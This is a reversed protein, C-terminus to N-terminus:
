CLRPPVDERGYDVVNGKQWTRTEKDWPTGWKCDFKAWCGCRGCRGIYAGRKGGFTLSAYCGLLKKEVEWCYPCCWMGSDGIVLWHPPALDLVVTMFDQQTAYAM